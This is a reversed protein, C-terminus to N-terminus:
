ELERKKEEAEAKKYDKSGVNYLAKHKINPGWFDAYLIDLYTYVIWHLMCGKKKEANLHDVLGNPMFSSNATCTQGAFKDRWNKLKPGCPCFCCKDANAHTKVVHFGLILPCTPLARIFPRFPAVRDPEPQASAFRDGMGDMYEEEDSGEEDSFKVVEKEKEQADSLFQKKM